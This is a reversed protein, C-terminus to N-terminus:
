LGYIERINTTFLVFVVNKKFFIIHKCTHLLILYDWIALLVPIQYNPTTCGLNGSKNAHREKQCFYDVKNSV